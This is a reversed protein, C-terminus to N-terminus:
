GGRSSTSSPAQLSNYDSMGENLIPEIVGFDYFPQLLQGNSGAPAGGAYVNANYSSQLHRDVNGVYGVHFSTRSTIAREFTLNYAESYPTRQSYSAAFITSLSAIQALVAPSAAPGFGTELTQGNTPRTVSGLANQCIYPVPNFGASINFPENSGLNPGL